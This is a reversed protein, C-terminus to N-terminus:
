KCKSLAENASDLLDSLETNSSTLGSILSQLESITQELQASKAALDSIQAKLSTDDFDDSCSIFCIIWLFFVLLKNKM